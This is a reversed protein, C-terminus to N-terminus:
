LLNRDIRSDFRIDKFSFSIRRPGEKRKLPSRGPLYGLNEKGFVDSGKGRTPVFRFPDMSKGIHTSSEEESGLAIKRGRRTRSTPDWSFSHSTRGKIRHHYSINRFSVILVFSFVSGIPLFFFLDTADREGRLRLISMRHRCLFAISPRGDEFAFSVSSLSRKLTKPDRDM